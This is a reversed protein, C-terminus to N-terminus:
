RYFYPFYLNLILSKEYNLDFSYIRTLLLHQDHNRTGKWDMFSKLFQNMNNALQGDSTLTFEYDM